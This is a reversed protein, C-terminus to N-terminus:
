CLHALAQTTLEIAAGQETWKEILPELRDLPMTQLLQRPCNFDAGQEVAELVDLFTKNGNRAEFLCPIHTIILHRAGMERMKWGQELLVAQSADYREWDKDTLSLPQPFVIAFNKKEQGLHFDVWIPLAKECNLIIWKNNHLVLFRYPGQSVYVTHSEMISPPSESVNPLVAQRKALPASRGSGYQPPHVELRPSQGLAQELSNRVFDHILRAQHFRVEQKTPHVNVDIEDLPAELFLVVIPYLGNEILSKHVSNIAHNLLKDKIARHNVFTYQRDPQRRAHTPLSLWGTLKLNGHQAHITIADELNNKGLVNEARARATMHLSSSYKLVVRTDVKFQFSIKEYALAYRKIIEEVHMVETKPSKMFKKRAPVNYFLDRVQLCTGNALSMKQVTDSISSVAWADSQEATKSVLTMKSISSISALAEGRFGLTDIANLDQPNELKSTAHREVALLLEEKPIGNGNDVIQILQMGANLLTVEIKTAGADIANEMCEKVVSAPREVVEGAAIQNALEVPLRRIPM